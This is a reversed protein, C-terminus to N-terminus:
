KPFSKLAIIKGSKNEIKSLNLANGQQCYYNWRLNMMKSYECDTCLCEKYEQVNISKGLICRAVNSHKGSKFTPCTSCKCMIASQEFGDRFEKDTINTIPSQLKEEFTETNLEEISKAM